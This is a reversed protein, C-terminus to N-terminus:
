RSRSGMEGVVLKLIQYLDDNVNVVSYLGVEEVVLSNPTRAYFEM